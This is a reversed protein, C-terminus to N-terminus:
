VYRWKKFLVAFKHFIKWRYLKKNSKKVGHIFFSKNPTNRIKKLHEYVKSLNVSDDPRPLESFQCVAGDFFLPCVGGM